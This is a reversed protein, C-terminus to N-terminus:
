QIVANRRICVQMKAVWRMRKAAEMAPRCRRPISLGGPDGTHKSGGHGRLRDRRSAELIASSKDAHGVFPVTLAHALSCDWTHWLLHHSCIDIYIYLTSIGNCYIPSQANPVAQSSIQAGLIGQLAAINRQAEDLARQTVKAQAKVEDLAAQVLFVAPM